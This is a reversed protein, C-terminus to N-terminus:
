PGGGVASALNLICSELHFRFLLRRACDGTKEQIKCRSDKAKRMGGGQSVEGTRRGIRPD